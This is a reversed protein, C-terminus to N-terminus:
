PATLPLVPVDLTISDNATNRVFQFAGYSDPMAATSRWEIFSLDDIDLTANASNSPSLYLYFNLANARIGAENRLIRDDIAVEFLNWGSGSVPAIDEIHSGLLLSEPDETPDTDDFQYLDLRIRPQADGELRAYFRFTYHATGDVPETSGDDRLRFLRNEPLAVRALPRVLVGDSNSSQRRLQLFREDSRASGSLVQKADGELAWHTRGGVEGDALEDEFRGWGFLDRGVWLGATGTVTGLRAHILGDNELAVITGPNLNVRRTQQDPLDRSLVGTHHEIHFSAGQSDADLTEPVVRVDGARDRLSLTSALSMEWLELITRRAGFDTIPAPKYAQIEFPIVRAQLLSDGEWITRLFVSQFTVLFDQDFIFNGLSYAILRGKYWEFGQLVHPHHCVVLHAGADIATRANRRLSESPSEQYQFGSHLQVVVVDTQEALAEIEARARSTNWWAAGGHGRRAVWDQMEPYVAALSAWAAAQEEADLDPEAEKYLQWAEGIRRPATAVQWAPGSYGWERATYQWEESPDLDDPVPEDARPYNDNVFSGTVTTWSFTGIRVGGIQSIAPQEALERTSGAGTYPFEFSELAAVTEIVGQDGYDRTHNNGLIVLDAQLGQLAALSEPPSNLIFRKGPYAESDPLNSITTEMNVTRFSAAAFAARIQSVVERAGEARDNEPLLPEGEPPALYRRGFMADGSNHMSWRRGGGDHFLIVDVTTGQDWRGIPAPESLYGPNSVVALEPGNLADLQVLGSANTTLSRDGLTIRAGELPQQTEDLIRLGVAYGPPESQEPPAEGEPDGRYSGSCALLYLSLLCYLYYPLSRPVVRASRRNM